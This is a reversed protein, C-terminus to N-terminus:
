GLFSKVLGIMDAVGGLDPRSSGEGNRVSSGTYIEMARTRALYDAHGMSHGKGIEGATMGAIFEAHPTDGDSRSNTVSNISDRYGRSTTEVRSRSAM